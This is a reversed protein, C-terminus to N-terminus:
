TSRPRRKSATSRPQALQEPTLIDNIAVPAECAPCNGGPGVRRCWRNCLECRQDGLYRVDCDTCEYVVDAKAVIPEIPAARRHRWASQRCVTSCFRQRGLRDFAVGCRLCHTATPTQTTTTVTTATDDHVTSM